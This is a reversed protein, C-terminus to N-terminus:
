QAPGALVFVQLPRPLPEGDDAGRRQHHDENQQVERQAAGGRHRHHDARQRQSQGAAGPREM